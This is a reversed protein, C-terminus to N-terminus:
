HDLLIQAAHAKVKVEEIVNAILGQEDIIFTKRSIGEFAKGFFKKHQWVGFAQIIKKNEDAVLPFPLCYKEQFRKQKAVTDASVGLLDYGHAKLEAYHDRLDCVEAICGPTNAKPYFFIVYKKNHYDSSKIKKGDQDLGEFDPAKDGKQLMYRIFDLCM